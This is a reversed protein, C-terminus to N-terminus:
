TDTCWHLHPVFKKRQPNILYDNSYTKNKKIQLHHMAKKSVGVGILVYFNCSDFWRDLRILFYFLTPLMAGLNLTCMHTIWSWRPSFFVKINMLLWKYKYITIPSWGHGEKGKQGKQLTVHPYFLLLVVLIVLSSQATYLSNWLIEAESLWCLWCQIFVMSLWTVAFCSLRYQLYM